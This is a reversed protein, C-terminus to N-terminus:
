HALTNAACVEHPEATVLAGPPEAFEVVYSKGDGHVSVITGKTGAPITSGDDSMLAVTLVVDDLDRLSSSPAEQALRDVFSFTMGAPHDSHETQAVGM